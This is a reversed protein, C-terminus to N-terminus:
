HDFASDTALRAFPHQMDAKFVFYTILVVITRENSTLGRLVIISYVGVALLQMLSVTAGGVRTQPFSRESTAHLLPHSGDNGDSTSRAADAFQQELAENAVDGLVELGIQTEFSPRWPVGPLWRTCRRAHGCVHAGDYFGHWFMCM